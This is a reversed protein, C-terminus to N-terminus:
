EYSGKGIASLGPGGAVLGVPSDSSVGGYEDLSDPLEEGSLDGGDASAVGASLEDYWVYSM